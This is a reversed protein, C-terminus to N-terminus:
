AHACHPAHDGVQDRDITVPSDSSAVLMTRAGPQPPTSRSSRRALIVALASVAGGVLGVVLTALILPYQTGVVFALFVLGLGGIGAVRIGSIDIVDKAM